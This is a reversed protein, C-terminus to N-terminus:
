MANTLVGEDEEGESCTYIIKIGHCRAHFVSLRLSTAFNNLCTQTM